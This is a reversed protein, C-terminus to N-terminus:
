RKQAWCPAAFTALAIGAEVLVAVFACLRAAAGVVREVSRWWRLGRRRRGNIPRRCHPARVKLPLSFVAINAFAPYASSHRRGDAIRHVREAVDEDGGGGGAACGGVHEVAEVVHGGALRRLGQDVVPRPAPARFPAAGRARRAAGARETAAAPGSPRGSRAAAPAAAPTSMRSCVAAARVAGRRLMQQLGIQRRHAPQHGLELGRQRLVLRRVRPSHSATTILTSSRTILSCLIPTRNAATEIAPASNIINTPDKTRAPPGGQQHERRRPASSSRRTASAVRHARM